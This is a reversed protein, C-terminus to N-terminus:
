KYNKRSSIERLIEKIRQAIIKEEGDQLCQPNIIIQNEVQHVYIPPDGELLMKHIEAATIGLRKEDFIL